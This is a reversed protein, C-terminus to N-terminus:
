NKRFISAISDFCRVIVEGVLGLLIMMGVFQWFGSFAIELIQSM